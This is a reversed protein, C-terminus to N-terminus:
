LISRHMTLHTLLIHASSQEWQELTIQPECNFKKFLNQIYNYISKIKMKKLMSVLLVEVKEM